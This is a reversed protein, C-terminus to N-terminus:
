AFYLAALSVASGHVGTPNPWVSVSTLHSFVIPGFLIVGAAITFCAFANRPGTGSPAGDTRQPLIAARGATQLSWVWYKSYRPPPLNLRTEPQTLGRLLRSRAFSSREM